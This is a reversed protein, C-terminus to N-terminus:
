MPQPAPPPSPPAAPGSREATLSAANIIKTPWMKAIPLLEPAVLVYPDRATTDSQAFSINKLLTLAVGAAIGLSAANKVFDRRNM